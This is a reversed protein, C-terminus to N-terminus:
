DNARIREIEREFGEIIFSLSDGKLNQLESDLENVILNRIMSENRESREQIEEKMQRPNYEKNWENLRKYHEGLEIMRDQYRGKEM